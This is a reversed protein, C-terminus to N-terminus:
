SRYACDRADSAVLDVSVLKSLSKCSVRMISSHTELFHTGSDLSRDSPRNLSIMLVNIESLNLM